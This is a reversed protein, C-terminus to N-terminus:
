YISHYVSEWAAETRVDPRSVYLNRYNSGGNKNIIARVMDIAEQNMLNEKKVGNLFKQVMLDTKKSELNNNCDEEIKKLYKFCVMLPDMHIRYAQEGANLVSTYLKRNKEDVVKITLAAKGSDMCQLIYYFFEIDNYNQACKKSVVKKISDLTIGWIREKGEKAKQDDTEGNQAFYENIVDKADEKQISETLRIADREVKFEDYSNDINWKSLSSQIHDMVKLVSKIEKLGLVNGKGYTFELIDADDEYAVDKVGSENYPRYSLLGYIDSFLMTLYEYKLSYIESRYKDDDIKYAYLNNPIYDKLLDFATDIEDESMAKLFVYPTVSCIRTQSNYFVRICNFESVNEFFHKNEDYLLIFKYEEIDSIGASNKRGTQSFLALVDEIDKDYFNWSRVYSTNPMPVSYFSKIFLDSVQRYAARDYGMRVTNFRAEYIDHYYKRIYSACNSEILTELYTQKRLLQAESESFMRYLRDLVRTIGRGYIMIDDVIALYNDPLTEGAKLNRIDQKMDDIYRVMGAPTTIISETKFLDQEVLQICKFETLCKRPVIVVYKYKQKLLDDYFFCIDNYIGAASFVEELQTRVIGEIGDTPKM